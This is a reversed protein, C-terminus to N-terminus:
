HTAIKALMLKPFGVHKHIITGKTLVEETINAMKKSTISITKINSIQSFLLHTNGRSLAAQLM